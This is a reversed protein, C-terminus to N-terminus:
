TEDDVGRKVDRITFLPRGKAQMFMRGLYEGIVGIVFLQTGGLFLIVTLTSAWGVITQGQFYGYMVFFGMLISGASVLLGLFTAIRLPKISFSTIADVAFRIMRSLPYKTEGAFRAAREYPLAEQRFGVWSVMGRIFRHEEPMSNLVDLTRRSLMRFDGTDRPIDIDVMQNLLRYFLYATAKKFVTEGERKIRQGYVVDCGDDMRAMMKPLLEPPDQLDADLVFIRQGSCVALGASLALQHGHNRSLDVAVVHKDKKSIETMATWTADASGDNVLVLEYSNGVHEKCVASVRRHLEHIGDIENYCPVVVSLLVDNMSSINKINNLM